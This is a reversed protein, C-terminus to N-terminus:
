LMEQFSTFFYLGEGVDEGGGGGGGAGDEAGDKGRGYGAGTIEDGLVVDVILTFTIMSLTPPSSRQETESISIVADAPLRPDV